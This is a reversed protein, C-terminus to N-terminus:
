AEERNLHPAISKSVAAAGAISCHLGCQEIIKALSHEVLQIALLDACITPSTPLGRRGKQQAGM